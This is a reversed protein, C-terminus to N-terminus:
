LAASTERSQVASPSSKIADHVIVNMTRDASTVRRRSRNSLIAEITQKPNGVLDFLKTIVAKGLRIYSLPHGINDLTEFHYKWFRNPQHHFLSAALEAYYATATNDLADAFEQDTLYKPGYEVLDCLFSSTHTHLARCQTSIANEHIREYSLVQHAFGFDTHQLYKYCASVDAHPSSNPYFSEAARVLDARYLLSTPTGFVYPGGLLQRRCVERGRIVTSPYPLEAWQVRWDRWNRGGGSLQYSGVIGVSPNAEAVRILGALCDPFLWDDASVDKCYKSDPSILRFATNHNEIIDLFTDNNHIHIRSDKRAYEEVIQRTQDTSCNNVITYDWTPYTQALISDICERLYWAGNYVPTVISVLPQNDTIM